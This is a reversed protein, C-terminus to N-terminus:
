IVLPYLKSNIWLMGYTYHKNRVMVGYSDKQPKAQAAAKNAQNAFLRTKPLSPPHITSFNKTLFDQAKLLSLCDPVTGRLDTLSRFNLKDSCPIFVANEYPVGETQELGTSDLRRKVNTRQMGDGASTLLIPLAVENTHEHGDSQQQQGRDKRQHM